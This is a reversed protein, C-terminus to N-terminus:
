VWFFIIDPGTVLDNTPYYYDLEDRKYFGDFVSIPWLWSSFWTDMVDEDQRLDSSELSKGTQTRAKELAEEATKAVVFDGEEEGYYWAPIRHGWWLQRSICWDKINTMWHKYTNNFKAPHFKVEGSEVAELAPKALPEMKVFWQKSLRPEIISNTRESRGVKNEYDEIKVLAGCSELMPIIQKIADFRDVGILVEAQDSMTGNPNLIDISELNHKQGLDYDNTDHAPTVKLCGTGFDMSVYEDLIIPVERNVIPVIAKKGHLHAYREDDPHICIATDGVITEPRTTAITVFEDSDQIQYRVSYLKGQEETHIVEEDSVATLASCDWNVM